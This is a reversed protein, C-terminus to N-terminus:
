CKRGVKDSTTLLRQYEPPLGLAQLVRLKSASVYVQGGCCFRVQKHAPSVSNSQPQWHPLSGVEGSATRM